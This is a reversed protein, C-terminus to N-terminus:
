TPVLTHNGGHRMPACPCCPQRSGLLSGKLLKASTISCRPRISGPLSFPSVPRLSLLKQFCPDGGVRASVPFALGAREGDFYFRACCRQRQTTNGHRATGAFTHIGARTHCPWAVYHAYNEKWYYRSTEELAPLASHRSPTWRQPPPTRRRGPEPRQQM